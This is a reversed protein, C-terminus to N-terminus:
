RLGDLHKGRRATAKLYMIQLTHVDSTEVNFVRLALMMQKGTGCRTSILLCGDRWGPGYGYGFGCMERRAEDGGECRRKWTRALGLRSGKWAEFRASDV